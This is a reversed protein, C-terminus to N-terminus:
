SSRGKQLPRGLESEVSRVKERIQNEKETNYDVKITTSIRRCDKELAQHCQSIVDMVQSWPGELITGMAHLEYDVESSDVVDLARAVYPGLRIGKDMPSMSFELIIHTDHEM